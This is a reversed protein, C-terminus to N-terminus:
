RTFTGLRVGVIIIVVFLDTGYVVRSRLLVTKSSLGGTKKSWGPTQTFTDRSTMGVNKYASM